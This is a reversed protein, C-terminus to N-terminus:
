RRACSAPNSSNMLQLVDQLTQLIYSITGFFAALKQPQFETKQLCLNQLWETDARCINEFPLRLSKQLLSSAWLQHPNTDWVCGWESSIGHAKFPRASCGGPSGRYLLSISFLLCSLNISGWIGHHEWLICPELAGGNIVSYLKLFRNSCSVNTPKSSAVVSKQKSVLTRTNIDFQSSIIDIKNLQNVYIELLWSGFQTHSVMKLSCVLVTM